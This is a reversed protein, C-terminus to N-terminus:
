DQAKLQLLLGQVFTPRACYSEYNTRTCTMHPVGGKILVYPCVLGLGIACNQGFHQQVLQDPRREEGTDEEGEDASKLNM